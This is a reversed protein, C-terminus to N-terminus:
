SRATQKPCRAIQSGPCDPFAIPALPLPVVSSRFALMSLSRSHMAIAIRQPLCSRSCFCAPASNFNAVGTRGLRMAGARRGRCQSPLRWIPRSATGIGALRYGRQSAARRRGLRRLTCILQVPGGFSARVVAAAPRGPLTCSAARNRTVCLNAAGSDELSRPAKRVVDRGGAVLNRSRAM